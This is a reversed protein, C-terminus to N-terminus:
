NLSGTARFSAIEAIMMKFILCSMTIFDVLRLEERFEKSCVKFEDSDLIEDSSIRLESGTLSPEKGDAHKAQIHTLLSQLTCNYLYTYM